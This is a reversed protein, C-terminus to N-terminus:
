KLEIPNDTDYMKKLQKEQDNLFERVTFKEDFPKDMIEVPFIGRISGLPDNKFNSQLKLFKEKSTDIVKKRNPFLSEAYSYEQFNDLKRNGKLEWSYDGKNDEVKVILGPLGYFKYPGDQIPIDTTFWAIWKRGGFEVSANQCNYDSIKKKDLLIKWNFKQEFSYQYNADIFYEQYMGKRMEPYIKTIRWPFVPKVLMNSLNGSMASGAKQLAEYKMKAVSDQSPITYDRYISKESTVDLITMIKEVDGGKKARYTLEYFFRNARDQAMIFVTGFVTLFFSVHKM